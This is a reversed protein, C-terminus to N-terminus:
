RREGMARYWDREVDMQTFEREPAPETRGDAECNDCIPGDERLNRAGCEHCTWWESQATM